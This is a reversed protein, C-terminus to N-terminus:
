HSGGQLVSQVYSPNVNQAINDPVNALTGISHLYTAASALSKTVLSSSIGTGQGLGDTSLQDQASYIQYGAMETKALDVSIGAQQAMNQLAEDPHQKYFTVADDEAQIFGKVLNPNNKAWDTNAIALNFIPAEQKM